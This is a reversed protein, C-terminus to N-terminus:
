SPVGSMIPAEHEEILLLGMLYCMTWRSAKDKDGHADQLNRNFAAITLRRVDDGSYPLLDM